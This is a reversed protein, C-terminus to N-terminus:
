ERWEIAVAEKGLSEFEEGVDDKMGSVQTTHHLVLRVVSEAGTGADSESRGWVVEFSSIPRRAWEQTLDYIVGMTVGGKLKVWGEEKENGFMLHRRLTHKVVELRCPAPQVPVMKRWSAGKRRYAEMKQLSENWELTRFEAGRGRKREPTDKFWSPFAKELLPNFEQGESVVTQRSILFLYQQIPASTNITTFWSQSVLAANILLDRRPLSLLIETFTEPLALVKERATTLEM